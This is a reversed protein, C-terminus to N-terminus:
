FLENISTSYNVACSNIIIGEPRMFGPEAVSGLDRLKDLTEQIRNTDFVGRYLIPVVRCCSPIKDNCLQVNFLSFRQEHINYGRQIGKGWWEGFHHGPGLMLLEDKHINAWKAFGYNDYEPTLWRKRSGALFEGTKGIYIHANTGDIKETILIERSLRPIKPFGRFEIDEM